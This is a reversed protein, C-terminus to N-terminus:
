WALSHGLLEACDRAARYLVCFLRFPHFRNLWYTLLTLISKEYERIDVNSPVVIKCIYSRHIEINLLERGYKM